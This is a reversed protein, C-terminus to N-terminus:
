YHPPRDHEADAPGSLLDGAQGSGENKLGTRISSLQRSLLAITRAQDALVDSLEEVTRELRMYRLELEVLRQEDQETTM